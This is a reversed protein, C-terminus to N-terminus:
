SEGLGFAMSKRKKQLAYMVKAKELHWIGFYWIGVMREEIYERVGWICAKEQAHMLMKGVLIGKMM